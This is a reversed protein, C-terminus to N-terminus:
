FPAIRMWLGWFRLFSGGTRYRRSWFRGLIGGPICLCCTGGLQENELFKRGGEDGKGEDEGEAGDKFELCGSFFFFFWYLLGTGGGNKGWELDFVEHDLAAVEDAAVAGAAGADVAGFGGEWVLVEVELVVGSSEQAHGDTGREGTGRDGTLGVVVLWSLSLLVGAGVGVAALEEDGGHRGGEQVVLVDHKALHDVAHIHHPLHLIRARPPLLGRAIHHNHLTPLHLFPPHLAHSGSDSAPPPIWANSFSSLLSFSFAMWIMMRNTFFTGVIRYAM